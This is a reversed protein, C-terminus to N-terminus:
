EKNTVKRHLLEINFQNDLLLFVEKWDYDRFCKNLFENLLLSFEQSVKKGENSEKRSNFLEPKHLKSAHFFEADNNFSVLYFEKSITEDNTALRNTILGTIVGVKNSIPDYVRQGIQGNKIM